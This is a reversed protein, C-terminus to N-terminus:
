LVTRPRRRRRRVVSQSVSNIVYQVTQVLLYPVNRYMRLYTGTGAEISQTCYTGTLLYEYWRTRLVETLVSGVVLLIPISIIDFDFFYFIYHSSSSPILQFVVDDARRILRM